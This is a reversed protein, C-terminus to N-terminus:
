SHPHFNSGDTDSDDRFFYMLVKCLTTLVNLDFKVREFATSVSWKNNKRDLVSKVETSLSYVKKAQMTKRPLRNEMDYSAEGM